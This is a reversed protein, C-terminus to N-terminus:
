GVSIQQEDFKTRLRDIQGRTLVSASNKVRINLSNCFELLIKSTTGLEKALDCIRMCPLVRQATEATATILDDQTTVVAVAREDHEQCLSSMVPMASAIKAYM